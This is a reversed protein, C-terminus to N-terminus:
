FYRSDYWEVVADEIECIRSLDCYIKQAKDKAARQRLDKNYNLVDYKPTLSLEPELWKISNIEILGQM